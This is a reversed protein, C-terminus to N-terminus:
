IPNGLRAVHFLDLKLVYPCFVLYSIHHCFVELGLLSKQPVVQKLERENERAGRGRTLGARTLFRRLVRPPRKILGSSRVAEWASNEHVLHSHLISGRAASRRMNTTIPSDVLASESVSDM